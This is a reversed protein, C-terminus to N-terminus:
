HSPSQRHLQRSRAHALRVSWFRDDIDFLAVNGDAAAYTYIAAVYSSWAVPPAVVDGRDHNVVLVISPAVTCVARINAVLSQLNAILSTSGRAAAYDNTGLEIVVLDPQITAVNDIWRPIAPDVYLASEAGGHGGEWTRIGAAEDGNYVMAGNILVVGSVWAIVVTHSAVSLGRVQSVIGDVAPITTWSVTTPAGGDVTITFNGSNGKAYFLDLGTGTFVLTLTHGSATLFRTRRGLGFSTSFSGGAQTFAQGSDPPNAYNASVYGRGGAIAAPQWKARLKDRLLDVWRNAFATAKTGETISTGITLIDVPTTARKALATHYARLAATRRSTPYRRDPFELRLADIKAGNATVDTRLAAASLDVAAPASAGPVQLDIALDLPIVDGAHYRYKGGNSLRTYLGTTPITFTSQSM